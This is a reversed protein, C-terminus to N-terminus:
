MKTLFGLNLPFLQPYPAISPDDLSEPHPPFYGNTAM